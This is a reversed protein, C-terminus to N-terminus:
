AAETIQIEEGGIHNVIISYINCRRRDLEIQDLDKVLHYFNM